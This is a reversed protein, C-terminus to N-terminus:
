SALSRPPRGPKRIEVGTSRILAALRAPETRYERALTRLGMGAVYKAAAEAADPKPWYDSTSRMEVGVRALQRYLTGGNVGFRKSLEGISHGARYLEAAALTQESPARRRSRKERWIHEAAAVSEDAPTAETRRLGRCIRYITTVHVGLEEALEGYIAGVAARARVEVVTADSLTTRPNLDGALHRHRGKRLMDASNDAPTGLFLHSPWACPPNDCRHCVLLGDPIRGFQGVWVARSVIGEGHQGTIGYGASNRGAPWELCEDRDRGDHQDVERWFAAIRERSLMLETVALPDGYRKWRQYHQSCWDRRQKLKGCDPVACTM